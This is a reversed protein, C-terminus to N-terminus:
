NFLEILVKGKIRKIDVFGIDSDRSDLSNIRNDGMVFCKGKPIEEFYIDDERDIESIYAEQLEIDNIYVKGDKLRISDGECAIVRKVCDEEYVSGARAPFVVVDGSEPVDLLYPVRSLLLWEGDHYTPDMSSGRVVVPRIFFTISVAIAISIFITRVWAKTEKDM